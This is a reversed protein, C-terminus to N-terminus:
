RVEKGEHVVHGSPEVFVEAGPFSGNDPSDVVITRSGQVLVGQAYLYVDIARALENGDLIIYTGVQTKFVEM